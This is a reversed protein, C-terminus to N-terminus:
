RHNENVNSETQRETDDWILGISSGERRGREITTRLERGRKIGMM